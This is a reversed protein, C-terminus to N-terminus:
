KNINKYIEKAIKKNEKTLSHQNYYSSHGFENTYSVKQSEIPILQRLESIRDRYGNDGFEQESVFNDRILRYLITASQNKPPKM